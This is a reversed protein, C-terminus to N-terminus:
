VQAISPKLKPREPRAPRSRKKREIDLAAKLADWKYITLTLKGWMRKLVLVLNPM